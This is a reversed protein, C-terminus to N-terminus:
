RTCTPAPRRRSRRSCRRPRSAPQDGDGARGRRAPDHDGPAPGQGGQKLEAAAHAIARVQMDFLGPIVLGLRVGRLGLMPNQEHLRRVAALLKSTRRRHGQRRGPRGQGVARDPRAPVRAAAPRDAPDDGAPRGHGRPDGRLRRAAAARPRRARGPADEDTEALILDSSWSAASASSCTSPASWASARPASGAPGARLGPRHRRQRARGAPAEADAHRMIRHVARVLEDAEDSDPAARGRLLAGGSSARGPGRGPVGRGSTGDISIM